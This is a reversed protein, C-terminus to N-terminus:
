TEQTEANEKVDNGNSDENNIPAMHTTIKTTTTQFLKPTSETLCLTNQVLGFVVWKGVLDQCGPHSSVLEVTGSGGYRAISSQQQLKCFKLLKHFHVPILNSYTDRTVVDREGYISVPVSLDFELVGLLILSLSLFLFEVVM